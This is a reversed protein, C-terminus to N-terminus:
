ALDAEFTRLNMVCHSLSRGPQPRHAVMAVSAPAVGADILQRVRRERVRLEFPYSDLGRRILAILGVVTRLGYLSDFWPGTAEFERKLQMFRHYSADCAPDPLGLRELERDPGVEVWGAAELAKSLRDDNPDVIFNEIPTLGFDRCVESLEDTARLIGQGNGYRSSGDPVLGEPISGTELCVGMYNSM